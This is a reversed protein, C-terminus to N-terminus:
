LFQNEGMTENSIAGNGECYGRPEYEEIAGAQGVIPTGEDTRRVLDTRALRLKAEEVAVVAMYRGPAEMRECVIQMGTAELREVGAYELIKSQALLRAKAFGASDGGNRSIARGIGFVYGGVAVCRNIAIEERHAAFVEGATEAVCASVPLLLMAAAVAAMSGAFKFRMKM